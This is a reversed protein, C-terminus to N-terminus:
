CAGNWRYSEIIWQSLAANAGPGKAVFAVTCSRTGPPRSVVMNSGPMIMAVGPTEETMIWEFLRQSPGLDTQQQPPGRAIVYDAITRGIYPDLAEKMKTQQQQQVIGACGVLALAIVAILAMGRLFQFM